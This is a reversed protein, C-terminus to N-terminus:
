ILFVAVHCSLLNSIFFEVPPSLIEHNLSHLNPGWMQGGPAGRKFTPLIGSNM